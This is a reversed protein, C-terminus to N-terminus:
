RVEQPQKLSQAWSMNLKGAQFYSLEPRKCLSAFDQLARLILPMECSSFSLNLSIFARGVAAYFSPLLEMLSWCFVSKMICVGTVSCGIQSWGPVPLGMTHEQWRGKLRESSRAGAQSAERAKEERTYLFLGLKHTGWLGTRNDMLTIMNKQAWLM